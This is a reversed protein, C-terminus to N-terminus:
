CLHVISCLGCTKKKEIDDLIGWAAQLSIINYYWNAFPHPKSQKDLAPIDELGVRDYKNASRRDKHFTSKSSTVVRKTSLRILHATMSPIIRADCGHDGM